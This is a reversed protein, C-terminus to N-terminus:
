EQLPRQWVCNGDSAKAVEALKKQHLVLEEASASIVRL